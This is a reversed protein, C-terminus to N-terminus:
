KFLIFLGTFVQFTTNSISIVYEEYRCVFRFCSFLKSVIYINKKKLKFVFLCDIPM